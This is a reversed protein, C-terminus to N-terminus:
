FVLLDGLYEGVWAQMGLVWTDKSSWSSGASGTSQSQGEACSPQAGMARKRCCTQQWIMVRQALKCDACSLSLIQQDHNQLGMATLSVMEIPNEKVQYPVPFLTLLTHLVSAKQLVETAQCRECPIPTHKWAQQEHSRGRAPESCDTKCLCGPPETVSPLSRNRM